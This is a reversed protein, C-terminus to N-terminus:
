WSSNSGRQSTMRNQKAKESARSNYWSYSGKPDSNDDQKPKRSLYSCGTLIFSVTLIILLLISNKM